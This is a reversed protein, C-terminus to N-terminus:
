RVLYLLPFLVIWLLDVMHWFCAGGEVFAFQHRTLTPRRSLVLLATLATLGLILHFWHLGTLVFYFMYFDNTQATLDHSVKAHYEVFKLVSFAVGCAMAGAILMPAGRIGRRIARVALVVLLSSGLLLLTNVAGYTQDLTAQSRTFLDAQDARYYLYTVFLVAFITMDGLILVWIGAEGPVRREQAPSEAVAPPAAAAAATKLM